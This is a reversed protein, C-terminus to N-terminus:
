SLALLKADLASIHRNKKGTKTKKILLLTPAASERGERLEALLEADLASIHRNKKGTKTKKVTTFHLPLQSV